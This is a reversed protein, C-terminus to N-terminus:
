KSSLWAGLDWGLLEQLGLIEERFSETLEGRLGPDLRPAPKLFLRRIASHIPYRVSLPITRDMFRTARRLDFARDYLFRNRPIGSPNYVASSEFRHSPDAGLFHYLDAMSGQPDRRLDDYLYIRMRERPFVKFFENLQRCYEGNRRYWFLPSWNERIRATEANLASQFDSIPERNMRLAHQFQSYARDVPHRLVAFLKVGPLRRAIATAATEALVLYDPSIEGRIPFNDAERFVSVYREWSRVVTRPIIEDGPGHYEIPQEAYGFYRMEKRVPLFIQPHSLLFQHVASTGSKQAGIGLFTPLVERM